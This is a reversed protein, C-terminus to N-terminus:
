VTCVNLRTSDRSNSIIFGIFNRHTFHCMIPTRKVLCQRMQRDIRPHKQRNPRSLIGTTYM